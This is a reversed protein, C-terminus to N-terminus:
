SAHVIELVTRELATPDTLPGDRRDLGEVPVVQPARSPGRLVLVRSCLAAVETVNHSIYLFGRQPFLRKITLIIRERTIEDVNALSEDMVLLDFDQVLYRVLNARNQQGLSLQKFRSDIHDAIGCTDILEPLRDRAGAPTVANLHERVSSWGPLRELNYTYLVRYIGDREIAGEFGPIAGALMRALTTKGVGSPGFLAHFGPRDISLSLDRFVDGEATPYRYSIHRADLRM